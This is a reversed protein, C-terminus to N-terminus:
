YSLNEIRKRYETITRLAGFSYKGSDILRKKIGNLISFPQNKVIVEKVEKGVQWILDATASPKISNTM